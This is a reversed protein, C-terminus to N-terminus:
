FARIPRVYNSAYSKAYAGSQGGAFNFNHTWGNSANYESSAVYRSATIGAGQGGFIASNVVGGNCATTPDLTQGVTWQCLLNLEVTDPLYWDTLSNGSYARAMGAATTNDNGQALIAASNLYGLGLAATSNNATTEDPIASVGTTNYTATAWVATPDNGTNWNKKSVELYHCLGGSPSGTASFTAGCNFGASSYYYVYGGGPGTEGIACAGGSACSLVTTHSGSQMTAKSITSTQLTPLIITVTVSNCSGGGICTTASSALTVYNAASALTSFTGSNDYLTISTAGYFLTAPTNSSDPYLSFIFDKGYCSQPINSITLTDIKFSCGNSANSFVNGPTLIINNSGACAATLAMGQGFEFSSTSMTINSAFTSRVFFGTLVLSIILLIATTIKRRSGASEEYEDVPDDWYYEDQNM